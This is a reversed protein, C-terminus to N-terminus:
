GAAEERTMTAYFDARREWMVRQKSELPERNARGRCFEVITAAFRTYHKRNVQRCEKALKASPPHKAAHADTEEDSGVIPEVNDLLGGVRLTIHFVDLLEKPLSGQVDLRELKSSRRAVQRLSSAGWKLRERAVIGFLSSPVEDFFLFGSGGCFTCITHGHGGCEECYRGNAAATDDGECVECTMYGEECWYCPAFAFSRIMARVAPEGGVRGVEVAIREPTLSSLRESLDKFQRVAEGYDREKALAVLKSAYERIATRADM